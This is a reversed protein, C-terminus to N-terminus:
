MAHSVAPPPPPSRKKGAGSPAFSYDVEHFSFPHTRKPPRFEPVQHTLAASNGCAELLEARAPLRHQAFCIKWIFTSSCILFYILLWGSGFRLSIRSNCRMM